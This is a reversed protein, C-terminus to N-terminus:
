AVVQFRLKKKLFQPKTVWLKNSFNATQFKLHFELGFLMKTAFNLPSKVPIHESRTM